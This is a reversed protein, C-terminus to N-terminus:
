YGDDGGGFLDGGGLDVAEEEEEEEKKEEAAADGGGAAAAAAAQLKALEEPDMNLLSDWEKMQEFSYGSAAAVAIIRRLANGFSHPVSALTPYGAALCIAAMRSVSTVFKSKLDDETIDLVAAAFVSGNDYVQELVLGYTFPLINLKQLLAAESGGVKEGKVVLKLESVIEIQGRSIKTPVNLAQFWSTQGPDCGTPGPPVIVDCEAIVGSRAAAPVRNDEIVQRVM